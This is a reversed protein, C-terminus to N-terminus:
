GDRSVILWRRYNTCKIRVNDKLDIAVSEATGFSKHLRENFACRTYEVVINTNPQHPIVHIVYDNFYPCLLPAATSMEDFVATKTNNRTFIDYDAFQLSVV